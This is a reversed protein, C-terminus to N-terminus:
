SILKYKKLQVKYLKLTSPRQRVAESTTQRLLRFVGGSGDNAGFQSITWPKYKYTHEMSPVLSVASKLIEIEREQDSMKQNLDQSISITAMDQDSVISTKSSSADGKMKPHSTQTGIERIDGPTPRESEPGMVVCSKENIGINKDIKEEIFNKLSIDLLSEDIGPSSNVAISDGSGDQPMIKGRIRQRIFPDLVSERRSQPLVELVGRSWYDCMPPLPPDHSNSFAASPLTENSVIASAM